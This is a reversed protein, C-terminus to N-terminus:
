NILVRVFAAHTVINWNLMVTASVLALLVFVGVWLKWKGSSPIIVTEQRPGPLEIGELDIKKYIRRKDMTNM